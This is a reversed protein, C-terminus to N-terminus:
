FSVVIQKTVKSNASELIVFYMGAAFGSDDFNVTMNKDELIYQQTYFSQGLINTLRLRYQKGPTGQIGLVFQGNGQFVTLNEPYTDEICSVSIEDLVVTTNDNDTQTLRYYVIGEVNNEDYYSYSQVKSSFGAASVNGAFYFDTGNHSRWISYYYSNTESATLWSLMVNSGNCTGSFALLNVPLPTTTSALTIRIIEGTVSNNVTTSSVYDSAAFPTSTRPEWYTPGGYNVLQFMQLNAETHGNLEAHWYYFNNVTLTTMTTPQLRYYRFIGYNGTFSGSGPQREHGRILVTNGLALGPTFNLGLGAENGSPNTRTTQITGTGQGEIGASTTARVRRTESEGNLTASSGFTTVYDRLNFHGTTMLLIGNIGIDRGVWVGDTHSNKVDVNAFTTYSSGLITQRANGSFRVWSGAECTATANNTWNSNAALVINAGTKVVLQGGSIVVGQGFANLITIALVAITSISKM